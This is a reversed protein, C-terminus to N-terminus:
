IARIKSAQFGKDSKVVEFEVRQNEALKRFGNGQIQSYHAFLDDGGQDPTIFGFGKAENFWKVTGTQVSM